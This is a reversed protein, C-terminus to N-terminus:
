SVQVVFVTTVTSPIANPDTASCIVATAGNPFFSGPGPSCVPAPTTGDGDTVTPLPYSVYAGAGTTNAYIAGPTSIALIDPYTIIVQGNGSWVGDHVSVGTASPTVFDSGGGGGGGGGSSIVSASDEATAYWLTDGSGGGGGAYYGGGGGGGIGGGDGGDYCAGTGSGPYCGSSSGEDGGTGGTGAVAGTSGTGGGGASGPSNVYFPGGAPLVPVDADSGGAGGAGGGNATGGTGSLGGLTSPGGGDAGPGASIGGGGGAEVPPPKVPGSPTVPSEEATTGNGGAGGGGGAVALMSTGLAFDSAGGGGGGPGPYSAPALGAPGGGNYGGAGSGDSPAAGGAQVTYAAGPTVGITATVAAGEGGAAQQPSDPNPVGGGQGGDLTVRASTVGPPATWSQAAGTFGFTVTCLGGSCSLAPAAVAASAPAAGLALGAVGAGAVLVTGAAVRAALRRGSVGPGPRAGNRGRRRAPGHQSM